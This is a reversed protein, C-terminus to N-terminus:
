TTKYHKRTYYLLGAPISLLFLISLWQSTSLGGFHGRLPDGRLFELFFRLISYSGLYMICLSGLYMGRFLAWTLLAFLALLLIAELLQVPFLSVENPAFLSTHYTISLPGNYAIGHCCGAFCCGIRGFAHAFPILPICIRLTSFLDLRHLRQALRIGLFGFPIGGYFVFGGRGLMDLLTRVPVQAECINRLNVLLYAVKAGLTGFLVTYAFLLLIDCYNIFFFHRAFLKGMGGAALLGLAIMCGYPQINM